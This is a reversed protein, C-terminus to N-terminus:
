ETGVSDGEPPGQFLVNKSKSVELRTGPPERPSIPGELGNDKWGPDRLAATYTTHQATQLRHSQCARSNHPYRINELILWPGSGTSSVLSVAIFLVLTPRAKLNRAYYILLCM